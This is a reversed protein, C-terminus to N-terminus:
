TLPRLGAAHSSAGADAEREPRCGQELRAHVVNVSWDTLTENGLKWRARACDALEVVNGRDVDLSTVFAGRNTVTGDPRASATELWNVRLADDGDRIPLGTTWRYRHIRRKAGRGSTARRSPLRIGELYEHLTKHSGPKATLLSDGGADLMARFVPQCAYLDDGLYVPRMPACRAGHSQLCRKVAQRECDQKVAGDRPVVFEPPLPLALSRGPAVLTAGLMRHFHEAGGDSRRRTSCHSCHIKRSRFFGTGELAVLM